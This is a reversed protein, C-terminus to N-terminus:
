RGEHQNTKKSHNENPNKLSFISGLRRLLYTIEDCARPTRATAGAPCSRHRSCREGDVAAICSCKACLSRRRCSANQRHCDSPIPNLYAIWWSHVSAACDSHPARWLQSVRTHAFPRHCDTRNRRVEPLTRLISKTVSSQQIKRV